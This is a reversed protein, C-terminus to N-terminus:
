VWDEQSVEFDNGRPFEVTFFPSDPEKLTNFVFTSKVQYYTDVVEGKERITKENWQFSTLTYGNEAAEDQLRKHFDEVEPMSDVRYENQSKILYHVAM